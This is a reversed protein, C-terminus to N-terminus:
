NVLGLRMAEAAANLRRSVGLHRFINKLYWKITNVELGLARAIEKNSQGQCVLQLIQLERNSFDDTSPGTAATDGGGPRTKDPWHSLLRSIFQRIHRRSGRRTRANTRLHRSLRELLSQMPPGEDYFMSVLQQRQAYDLVPLLTEEAGAQDHGRYKTVALQIILQFEQLVRGDRRAEMVLGELIHCAGQLDGQQVAARAQMRETLDGVAAAMGDGTIDAAVTSTAMDRSDGIALSLRLTEKALAAALRPSGFKAATADGERLIAFAEASDGRMDALRCACSYTAIYFDIVGGEAGLKRSEAILTGAREFEGRLFSIHGLLASALLAAHSRSGIRSRALELADEFNEAAADINGREREALGAFCLGYVGSFAGVNQQHYPKAWAQLALADTFRNTHIRRFSLVNAAVAVIWPTYSEPKDLIPRLRQGIDGIRDSYIDICAQLLEADARMRLADDDAGGSDLWAHFRHLAIDADEMRHTLCNAWGLALQLHPREGLAGPEFRAVLRLLTGMRSREVLPMAHREVIIIARGTDGSALAHDVASEIDGTTEFWHAAARHLGDLWEPHDRQLRRKLHAAFLHHYRFWQTGEDLPRIFLNDRKLEELMAQSDARGTVANCLSHNLRDLISTKLLFERRESPLTNLTTETLYDDISGTIRSLNSIQTDIGGGRLSLMALQLAAVWGETSQWLAHVQEGMLDINGVMGFFQRTESEDFRLDQAKLTVVQGQVKLRSLQVKPQFRSAILFHANPPAFEMLFSLAGVAENESILHLDDLVLYIDEGHHVLANVLEGLVRTSVDGTREEILTDPDEILEPAITRLAAIIYQVLRVPNNDLRDLSLWAVRGGAEEVLSRWILASTTKGFGAPAQILTLKRRAGETLRPRLRERKVIEGPAQPALLKTVIINQKTETPNVM